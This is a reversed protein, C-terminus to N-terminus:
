DFYHYCLNQMFALDALPGFVPISKLPRTQFRTHFIVNKPRFDPRSKFFWAACGWWSNGPTVGGGGAGRAVM